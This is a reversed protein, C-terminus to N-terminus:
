GLESLEDIASDLGGGAPKTRGDIVTPSASSRAWVRGRREREPRDRGPSHRRDPDPGTQTLDQTPQWAGGAPKEARSSRDHLARCRGLSWVAIARGGALAVEPETADEGAGTLDLAELWKGGPAM